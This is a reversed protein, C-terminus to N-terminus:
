QVPFTIIVPYIDRAIYMYMYRKIKITTPDKMTM